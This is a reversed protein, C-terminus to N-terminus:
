FFFAQMESCRTCFVCGSRLHGCLTFARPDRRLRRDALCRGSPLPRGRSSRRLARVTVTSTSTPGDELFGNLQCRSSFPGGAAAKVEPDTRCTPAAAHAPHVAVSDVCSPFWRLGQCQSPRRLRRNAPLPPLRDHAMKWVTAKTNWRKWVRTQESGSVPAVSLGPLRVSILGRACHLHTCYWCLLFISLLSAVSLAVRLVIQFINIGSRSHVIAIGQALHCGEGLSLPCAVM